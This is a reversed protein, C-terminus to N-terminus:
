EGSHCKHQTDNHEADYAKIDNKHTLDHHTGKPQIDNEETGNKKNVRRFIM